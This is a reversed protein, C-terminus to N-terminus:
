IWGLKKKSECVLLEDWKTSIIQFTTAKHKELAAQLGLVFDKQRIELQIRKQATRIYVGEIKKDIEFDSGQEDQNGCFANELLRETQQQLYMTYIAHGNDRVFTTIADKDPLAQSDFVHKASQM